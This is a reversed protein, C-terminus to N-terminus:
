RGSPLKAELQAFEEIPTSLDADTFLILEGIARSVGHGVSFGKGRNAGNRVLTINPHSAAYREVVGCTDDKSGDDAVLVEIGFSQEARWELVRDMTPVLRQEENYAPIVISLHPRELM